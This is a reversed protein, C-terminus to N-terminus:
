LKVGTLRDFLPVKKILGFLWRGILLEIIVASIVIVPRIFLIPWFDIRNGLNVVLGAWVLENYLYISFSMKGILQLGKREKGSILGAWGVCAGIVILEIFIYGWYFYSFKGMDWLPILILLSASLAALAMVMRKDILVAFVKEKVGNVLYGLSFFVSWNFINLYVGLSDQEIIGKVRLIVSVLSLVGLMTVVAKHHKAKQVFFYIIYLMFLVTLFWYSSMYGVVSLLWEQFSGGKRIAVYFYVLSASVIWPLGITKIKKVLFTVFSNKKEKEYAFLYGSVCYFIGVGVAGIENLLTCVFVSEKSFTEPILSIHACVVSFIAFAKLIYILRSEKESIVRNM